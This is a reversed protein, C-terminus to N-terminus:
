PKEGSDLRDLRYEHLQSSTELKEMRECIREVRRFLEELREKAHRVDVSDVITDDSTKSLKNIVLFVASIGGALIASIVIEVYEAM